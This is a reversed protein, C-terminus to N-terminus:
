LAALIREAIARMGEDGPHGAVGAHSFLGIAKMEDRAGLDGLAVLTWGNERAAQRIPEDIAPSAWFLDTVVVRAAPNPAFFRVMEAFAAAYDNAALLSRDTNEGIRVIVTDARFARAAAFHTPLIAPDTFSREWVAGQAICWDVPGRAAEIGAVVRHVYDKEPASAAMGWDVNWGISPKPGHRTISNGVFLVRGHPADAYHFTVYQSDPLQSQSSVTNNLLDKSFEM